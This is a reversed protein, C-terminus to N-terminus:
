QRGNPNEKGNTSMLIRVIKAILFQEDIPDLNLEAIEALLSQQLTHKHIEARATAYRKQVEEQEHRDHEHQRTLSEEDIRVTEAYRHAQYGMTKLRTALMIDLQDQEFEMKKVASPDFMRAFLNPRSPTPLSDARQYPVPLSETNKKQDNRRQSLAQILTELIDKQEEM